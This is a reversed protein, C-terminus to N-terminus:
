NCLYLIECCQFISSRGGVYMVSFYVQAVVWTCLVSIYKLSWGPVCCQFIGSRGGLYVVSFYVQAVVWTCLM